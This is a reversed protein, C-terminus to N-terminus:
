IIVTIEASHFYLVNFTHQLKTSAKCLFLKSPNLSLKMVNYQSPNGEIKRVKSNEKLIENIKEENGRKNRSLDFSNLMKRNTNDHFKSGSM